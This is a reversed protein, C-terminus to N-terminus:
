GMLKRIKGEKSIVEEPVKNSEKMLEIERLWLPVHCTM